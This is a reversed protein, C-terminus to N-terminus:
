ILFHLFLVMLCYISYKIFEPIRTIEPLDENYALARYEKKAPEIVLIPIQNKTGALQSSLHLMSYTKGSGPVGAILAHKPLLNLPFYVDYGSNDKGLYLGDNEYIPASEKPIEITEGPYLVPFM